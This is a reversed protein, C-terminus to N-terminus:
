NAKLNLAKVLQGWRETDSRVLQAYQEPTTSMSILGEFELQKLLAPDKLAAELAAHLKRVVPAPTGKPASLGVWSSITLQRYGLEAFTPVSPVVPSRQESSVALVKLKGSQISSMAANPPIVIVSVVGALVDQLAPAGGKYPVHTLQIGAARQLQEMVLHGTSGAGSSAYNIKGPEKKAQALLDQFSAIGADSRVVLWQAGGGIAGVHEFDKVIDFPVNEYMGQAITNLMGTMTLTYGDPAAAAGAQTGVINGASPRNDVVVPQKLTQAMHQALPRIVRDYPGGAPAPVIIRVPRTPFDQAQAHAVAALAVCGAALWRYLSRM